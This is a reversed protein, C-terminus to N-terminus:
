LKRKKSSNGPLDSSELNLAEMIKLAAYADNAAYSLQRATLEAAAWNSTTTSKSKPFSLKLVDAMAGRVGIQNRHGRKRFTQDLDLVHTLKVGFRHRIQGHDNKLGFGVKLVRDSEILSAVVPVCESHRLQFIFARDTLAFQVVHPGTSKEGVRFTPRSETDFGAVGAALIAQAADACEMKTRPILIRDPSLGPFPPLLASEAKTLATAGRRVKPKVPTSPIPEAKRFLGTVRKLWSNKALRSPAPIKTSPKTM